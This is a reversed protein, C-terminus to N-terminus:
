WCGGSSGKRSDSTARKALKKYCSLVAAMAPARSQGDNRVVYPIKLGRATWPLSM